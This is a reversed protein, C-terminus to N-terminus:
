RSLVSPRLTGVAEHVLRVTTRWDSVRALSVPTHLYRTPVSVSISPIGQNALQISGADTGGGGPQRIQYAYGGAEATEILHQLLGPHALTSSDAAYIAPGRGQRANYESNESGDWTPMDMAPTSDLAIAVDPELNRAAVGAGRLGVEEQVTFAALLDVGPPANEVLEILTAVGLRDDLAKAWLSGGVRAFRTAFSAYDGPKIKEQAESKKSAGIDIAMADLKVGQKLEEKTTLHIPKSGIVGLVRQRGVWVPKGLLQGVDTHGVQNFKLLGNDDIAVVM